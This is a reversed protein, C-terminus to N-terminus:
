RNRSKFLFTAIWKRMLKKKKVNSLFYRFIIARKLHSVKFIFPELISNSFLHHQQLICNNSSLHWHQWYPLPQKLTVFRLCFFVYFPRRRVLANFWWHWWCRSRKQDYQFNTEQSQRTELLLNGGRIMKFILKEPTQLKWYYIVM